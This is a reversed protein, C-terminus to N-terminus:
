RWALGVGVRLMAGSNTPGGRGNGVPKLIQAQPQLLLSAALPLDAGLGATMVARWGSRFSRGGEFMCGVEPTCGALAREQRDALFNLASLGGTVFGNVRRRQEGVRAFRVALELGGGAAGPDFSGESAYTVAMLASVRSGPRPRLGVRLTPGWRTQGMASSGGGDFVWHTAEIGIEASMGGAPAQAVCVEWSCLSAALAVALALRIPYRRHCSQALAVLIPAPLGTTSLRGIGQDIGIKM